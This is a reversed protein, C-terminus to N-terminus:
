FDIYHISRGAAYESPHPSNELGANKIYEDVRNSVDSRDNPNAAYGPNYRQPTESVEHIIDIYAALGVGMLCFEVLQLRSIM